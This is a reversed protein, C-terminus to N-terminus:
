KRKIGQQAERLNKKDLSFEAYVKEIFEGLEMEPMNGFMEKKWKGISEPDSDYVQDIREGVLRTVETRIDLCFRKKDESLELIYEMPQFAAICDDLSIRERRCFGKVTVLILDRLIEKKYNM